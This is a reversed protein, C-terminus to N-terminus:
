KTSRQGTWASKKLFPAISLKQKALTQQLLKVFHMSVFAETMVNHSEAVFNDNETM